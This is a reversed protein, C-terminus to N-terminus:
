QKAKGRLYAEPDKARPPIRHSPASRKHSRLRERWADLKAAGAKNDGDGLASVVDADFVYEGPALKADIVDDQGGHGMPEALETLAGSTSGGSAFGIEGSYAKREPPVFPTPARNFFAQVSPKQQPTWDNFEGFGNGPMSSPNSRNLLSDLLGLGSAVTNWNKPDMLWNGVNELAGPPNPGGPNVGPGLNNLGSGVVGGILGPVVPNLGPVSAPVNGPLTSPLTSTPLRSGTVSVTQPTYGGAAGGAGGTAAGAAGAGGAGAAGGLGAGVAATVEGIGLGATTLPAITGTALSAQPALAAAQAPTLPPLAGLTGTGGAAPGLLSAGYVFAAGKAMETAAEKWDDSNFSGADEDDHLYRGDPSYVAVRGGPLAGLYQTVFQPGLSSADGEGVMNQGYIPTFRDSSLDEYSMDPRGELATQGGLPTRSAQQVMAQAEDMGPFQIGQSQASQMYQLVQQPTAGLARAIHGPRIGYQQMAAAIAAPNNLNAEIFSKLENSSSYM